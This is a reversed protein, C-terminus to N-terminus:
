LKDYDIRYLMEAEKIMWPYLEKGTIVKGYLKNINEDPSPYCSYDIPKFLLIYNVNHKIILSKLEAENETFWMTHNDRIGEINSHYPSGITDIDQNYMLEPASFVSTLVVGSIDHKPRPYTPAGQMSCVYFIPFLVYFFTVLKYKIDKDKLIMLIFLGFSYILLWVCLYYPYFRVVWVASVATLLYLLGLNTIYAQRCRSIYLLACVIIFGSIVCPFLYGFMYYMPKMEDVYPTFYLLVEEDYVPAFINNIGFCLLMLLCSIFASASLVIFRKVPSKFGSFHLVSFSLLIFATLTTHMISLRMNDIVLWGGYPPNILWAALVAYFLGLSYGLSYKTDQGYFIINFSLVSLIIAVVYLGEAASSAWLGCGSLLGAIFLESYNQKIFSRILVAINYSFIFCMLSHHDPRNYEFVNTTNGCFTFMIIFSILFLIEKNKIETLYPKLAWLLTIITLVLFLPSFLLGGLFIAEKLPMFFIFPLGLILWIVDCIRTFHLVFGDPPNGLPMLKEAWQFNQLWDIIRLARTYCDTDAYVISGIRMYSSFINLAAYIGIIVATSIIYHKWFLSISNDFLGSVTKKM